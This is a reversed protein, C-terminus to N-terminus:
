SEAKPQSQLIKSYSKKTKELFSTLEEMLVVEYNPVQKLADIQGELAKILLKALEQIEKSKLNAFSPCTSKDRLDYMKNQTLKSFRPILSSDLIGALKM